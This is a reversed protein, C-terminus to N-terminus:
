KEEEQVNMKRIFKGEKDFELVYNETTPKIYYKENYQVIRPKEIKEYYEKLKLRALTSQLNKDTEILYIHKFRNGMMIIGKSSKNLFINEINDEINEIDKLNIKTVNKLEKDFVNLGNEKSYYYVYNGYTAISINTQKKGMDLLSVRENKTDVLALMNNNEYTIYAYNNNATLHPEGTKKLKGEMFNNEKFMTDYKVIAETTNGILIYKKDNIVEQNSYLLKSFNEKQSLSDVMHQKEKEYELNSEDRVKCGPNILIISTLTALTIMNKFKKGISKKDKKVIKKDKNM